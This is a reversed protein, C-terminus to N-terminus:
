IWSKGDNWIQINLIRIQPPFVTIGGSNHLYM